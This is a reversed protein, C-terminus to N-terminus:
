LKLVMEITESVRDESQLPQSVRFGFSEYLKKAVKSDTDICTRAETQAGHLRLIEIVRRMADKAYGRGQYKEDIMLRWIDYDHLDYAILGVLRDESYIALAIKDARFQMQALTLVNPAVLHEQERSVKLSIVERFNEPTIARLNVSM